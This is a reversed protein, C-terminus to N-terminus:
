AYREPHIAFLLGSPIPWSRADIEIVPLNSTVRLVVLFDLVSSAFSNTCSYFKTTLQFKVRTEINNLGSIPFDVPNMRLQLKTALKETIINSDSGSDLLARCKVLTNGKGAVVVQATSLVVQQRAGGINACLIIASSQQEPTKQQKQPQVPSEAVHDENPEDKKEPVAVTDNYHLM